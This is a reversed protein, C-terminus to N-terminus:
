PLHMIMVWLSPTIIMNSQPAMFDIYNVQFGSSAMPFYKISPTLNLQFTHPKLHSYESTRIRGGVYKRNEESWRKVGRQSDSITWASHLNKGMNEISDVLFM